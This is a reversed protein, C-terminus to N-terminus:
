YVRILEYSLLVTGISVILISISLLILIVTEYYTTYVGLRLVIATVLSLISLVLGAANVKLYKKYIPKIRDRSIRDESSLEGLLYTTILSIVSIVTIISAISIPSSQPM